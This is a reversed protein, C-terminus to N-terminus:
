DNEEKKLDIYFTESQEVKMGCKSLNAAVLDTDRQALISEKDVEEKARVYQPMFEKVMSLVAGWTFKSLLKLAPTSTRFGVAGHAMEISKKKVFLEPNNQAYHQVKEFADQLTTNLQALEEQNKERVKTIAIDMSANVQTIRAHAKAYVALAQEAEENTLHTQLVKAKRKEMKKIKIQTFLNYNILLV